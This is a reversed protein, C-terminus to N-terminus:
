KVLNETDKHGELTPGILDIGVWGEDVAGDRRVTVGIARGTWLVGCRIDIGCLLTRDIIETLREDLIRIDRRHIRGVPYVLQLDTPQRFLSAHASM